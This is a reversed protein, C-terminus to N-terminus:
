RSLPDLLFAVAVVSLLSFVLYVTALTYIKSDEVDFNDNGDSADSPCFSPGCSAMDSSSIDPIFFFFPFYM